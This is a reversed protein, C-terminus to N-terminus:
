GMVRVLWLSRFMMYVFVSSLVLHVAVKAGSRERWGDWAMFGNCALGFLSIAVNLWLPTLVIYEAIALDELCFSGSM